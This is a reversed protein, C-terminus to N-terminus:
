FRTRIHIYLFGISLGLMGFVLGRDTVIALLETKVRPPLFLLM